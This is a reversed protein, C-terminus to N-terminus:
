SEHITKSFLVLVSYTWLATNAEVELAKIVPERCSQTTPVDRSTQEEEGKAIDHHSYVSATSTVQGGQVFRVNM